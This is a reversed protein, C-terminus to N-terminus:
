PTFAERRFHGAETYLNSNNSYDYLLSSTLACVSYCKEFIIREFHM